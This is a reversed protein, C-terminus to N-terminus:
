SNTSKFIGAYKVEETQKYTAEYERLEIEAKHVEEETGTRKANGVAIALDMLRAYSLQTM